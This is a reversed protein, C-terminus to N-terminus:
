LPPQIGLMDFSATCSTIEEWHESLRQEAVGPPLLSLEDVLPAAEGAETLVRYFAGHEEVQKSHTGSQHIIYVGVRDIVAAGESAPDDCSNLGLRKLVIPSVDLRRGNGSINFYEYDPFDMRVRFSDISAYSQSHQKAPLYDELASLDALMARLGPEDSRDVCLETNAPTRGCVDNDIAQPPGIVLQCITALSTATVAGIAVVYPTQSRTQAAILKAYFLALGAVAFATLSSGAFAKISNPFAFLTTSSIGSLTIPIIAWTSSSNGGFAVLVYAALLAIASAVFPHTKRTALGITAAVSSVLFLFSVQAMALVFLAPPTGPYQLLGACVSPIFGILLGFVAIASPASIAWIIQKPLNNKGLMNATNIGPASFAAANHATTVALGLSVIATSLRMRDTVEVLNVYAYRLELASFRASLTVSLVLLATGLLPFSPSGFKRIFM